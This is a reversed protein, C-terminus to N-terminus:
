LSISSKSEASTNYWAASLGRQPLISRIFSGKQKKGNAEDHIRENSFRKIDVSPKASHSSQTYFRKFFMLMSNQEIYAQKIPLERKKYCPGKIRDLVQVWPV